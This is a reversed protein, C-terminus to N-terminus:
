FYDYLFLFSIVVTIIITLHYSIKIQDELKYYILSIISVILAIYGPRRELEKIARKKDLDIFSKSEKGLDFVNNFNNIFTNKNLHKFDEKLIKIWIEDGENLETNVKDFDLSSYEKGGIEFDKKYNKFNLILSRYTTWKITEIEHRPKKSLTV